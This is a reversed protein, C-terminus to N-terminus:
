RPQRLWRSARSPACRPRRRRCRLAAEGAGVLRGVVRLEGVADRVAARGHANRSLDGRVLAAVELVAARVGVDVGVDDRSEDGLGDAAGRACSRPAPWSPEPSSPPPWSGAGAFFTALFAGAFFRGSAASSGSSVRRQRRRTEYKRGCIRRVPLHSFPGMFALRLVDQSGDLLAANAEDLEPEGVHETAVLREVDGRGLELVGEVLAHGEVAPWRRSRRVWSDSTRARGSRVVKWSRGQYSSPAPTARTKQSMTLM